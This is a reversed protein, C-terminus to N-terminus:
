EPPERRQLFVGKAMVAFHVADFSLRQSVTAITRTERRFTQDAVSTVVYHGLLSAWPDQGNVIALRMSLHECWEYMGEDFGWLPEEAAYKSTSCTSLHDVRGSKMIPAMEEELKVHSLVLWFRLGPQGTVNTAPASIVFHM